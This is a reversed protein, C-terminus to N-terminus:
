PRLYIQFDLPAFLLELCKSPSYKTEFISEITSGKKMHVALYIHSLEIYKEILSFSSM